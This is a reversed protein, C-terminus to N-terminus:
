TFYFSVILSVVINSVICPNYVKYQCKGPTGSTTLESAALDSKAM